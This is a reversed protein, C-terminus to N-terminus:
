INRKRIRPQGRFSGSEGLIIQVKQFQFNSAGGKSRIHPFNFDTSNTIKPVGRLFSFLPKFCKLDSDSITSKPEM